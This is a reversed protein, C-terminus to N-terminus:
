ECYSRNCKPCGTIVKTENDDHKYGCFCIGDKSVFMPYDNRKCYAIQKDMM